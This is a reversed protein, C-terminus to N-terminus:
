KKDDNQASIFMSLLLSVISVVIAGWFAPGFGDVRFGVNLLDALWGTLLLMFANVIFTFLGLTVVFAPCTAVKVFPKIVANIIGFILAVVLLNFLDVQGNAVFHIGDVLQAAVFLAVANGALRILLQM